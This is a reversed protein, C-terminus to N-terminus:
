QNLFQSELKTLPANKISKPVFGPHNTVKSRKHKAVRDLSKKFTKLADFKGQKKRKVEDSSDSTYDSPLYEGVISSPNKVADAILVSRM